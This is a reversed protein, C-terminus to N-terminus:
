KFDPYIIVQNSYRLDMYSTKSFNDKIKQNKVLLLREIQEDAAEKTNFYVLPGNVIKVKITNFEQDIIFKELPLDSHKALRENLGFIFNLYDAKINLKDNEAIMTAASKNELIFYKKKDEEKVPTEKILYADASSYILQSGEQFIFAYPRESIKLVLTNPLKKKIELGALNYSTIIKKEAATGDFLFLNSEEWFLWHKSGTQNRIMNEIEGSNIRTLGEIQINQIRWWPASLTMWILLIIAVIAALIIWVVSRPNKEKQRRRFFPNQLNKRQYDKKIRKYPRGLM